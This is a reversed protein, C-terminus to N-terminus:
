LCGEREQFADTCHLAFEIVVHFLDVTVYRDLVVCISTLLGLSVNNISRNNVASLLASTGGRVTTGM